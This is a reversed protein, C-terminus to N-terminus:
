SWGLLYHSMKLSTPKGDVIKTRRQPEDKDHKQDMDFNYREINSCLM